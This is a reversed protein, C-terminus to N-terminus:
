ASVELQGSLGAVRAAPAVQVIETVKLGTSSPDRGPVRVTTSVPVELGSSTISLPTPTAGDNTEM